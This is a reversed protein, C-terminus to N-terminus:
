KVSNAKFWKISFYVIKFQENFYCINIQVKQNISTILKSKKKKKPKKSTNQLESVDCSSNWGQHLRM